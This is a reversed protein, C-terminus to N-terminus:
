FEAGFFLIFVLFFGLFVFFVFGVRLGFFGEACTHTILLNLVRIKGAIYKESPRGQPQWLIILM